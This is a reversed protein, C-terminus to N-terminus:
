ILEAKNLVIVDEKIQYPTDEKPCGRSFVSGKTWSKM